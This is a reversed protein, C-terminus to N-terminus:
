VLVNELKIDRHIFKKEHMAATATAIQITIELAQCLDNMPYETLYKALDMHERKFVLQPARQHIALVQVFNEHHGIERCGVLWAVLWVVTLLLWNRGGRGEV